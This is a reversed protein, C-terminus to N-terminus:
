SDGKLKGYRGGGGAEIAVDGNRLRLIAGALKEPVVQQLEELSAHHIVDMETGFRELLKEYTKPGLSPLYELPVQYIYPPRSPHNVSNTSLENIREAVGKIVKKSGCNPCPTQYVSLNKQCHNCVTQHYKGLRPNMGYNHNIKRESKGKIALGLEYFSLEELLVEQYERGIKNLSHADSNSLFPFVHLESIQDAMETDSSLGLEVADIMTADFVDTLSKDVGKGYMSKFPTFVHAPIFWGGFDKVCKQLEEATGYFRQSSLNINTMRTALWSSFDKMVSLFPFFCLVHIPGRCNIDYIEIESGLILLTNEFCVGGDKHEKAHGKTLFEELEAQVEPVHADIVGVIDMGKRRSAEKLVNTVTLSKGGSIKVPRGNWDKGIHIHLDAFYSQLDM